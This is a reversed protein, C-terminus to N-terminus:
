ARSTSYLQRTMASVARSVAMAVGSSSRHERNNSRVSASPCPASSKMLTRLAKRAAATRDAQPYLPELRIGDYSRSVLKKEFDAGKLVKDVLASWGERTAAPFESALALDTM